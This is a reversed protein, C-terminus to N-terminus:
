GSAFLIRAERNIALLRRMADRGSLRPMTLDLIILDPLACPSQLRDRAEQGNTATIVEYGEDRLIDALDQRIDPDDYGM